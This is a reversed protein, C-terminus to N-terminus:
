CSGNGNKGLRIFDIDVDFVAVKTDIHETSTSRAALANVSGVRRDQM